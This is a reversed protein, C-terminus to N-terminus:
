VKKVSYSLVQRQKKLETIYAFAEMMNNKSAEIMAGGKLKVCVRIM